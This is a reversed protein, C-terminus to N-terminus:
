MALELVALSVYYSGKEYPSSSSSPTTEPENAKTTHFSTEFINVNHKVRTVLYIPIILDWIGLFNPITTIKNLVVNLQLIFEPVTKMPTSVEIRHNSNLIYM